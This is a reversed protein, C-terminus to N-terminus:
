IRMTCLSVLLAKQVMDFMVKLHITIDEVVACAGKVVLVHFGSIQLRQFSVIDGRGVVQCRGVCVKLICCWVMELMIISRWLIAHRIMMFAMSMKTGKSPTTYRHIYAASVLQVWELVLGLLYSIEQTAKEVPYGLWSYIWGWGNSAILGTTGTGITAEQLGRGTHSSSRHTRARLANLAM